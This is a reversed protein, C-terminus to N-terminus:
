SCLRHVFITVLVALFEFELFCTANRDFLLTARAPFEEDRNYFILQIPIHPLLEFILSVSGMGAEGGVHGGAREAVALLEPVRGGFQKVIPHELASASYGGQKFLPGALTAFTVFQGAVKAKSAQKLYHILVRGISEYFKQDDVRRVGQGSVKYILGMFPIEAEGSANFVLGLNACSGAIDIKALDKLLDRYIKKYGEEQEM